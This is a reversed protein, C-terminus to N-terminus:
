DVNGIGKFAFDVQMLGRISMNSPRIDNKTWGYAVELPFDVPRWAFFYPFERAAKVFTDFNNRYWGPELHRLNVNGNVGRRKVYQGLFQGGDSLNQFMETDRNLVAPAHGGHISRQVLLIEGINIVAIKGLDGDGTLTIRWYRRPIKTDLFM